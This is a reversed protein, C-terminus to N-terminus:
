KNDDHSCCLVLVVILKLQHWLWLPSSMQKKTGCTSFVILRAAADTAADQLLPMHHQNCFLVQQQVM